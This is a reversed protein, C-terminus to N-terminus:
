KLVKVVAANVTSVAKGCQESVFAGIIGDLPCVLSPNYEPSFVILSWIWSFKNQQWQLAVQEYHKSMPNHEYHKSM